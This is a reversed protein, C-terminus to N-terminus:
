RIIKRLSLSERKSFSFKKVSRDLKRRVLFMEQRMEMREVGNGYTEQMLVKASQSM